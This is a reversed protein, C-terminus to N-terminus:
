IEKFQLQGGRYQTTKCRIIKVVPAAQDVAFKVTLINGLGKPEVAEFWGRYPEATRSVPQQTVGREVPAVNSSFSLGSGSADPRWRERHDGCASWDVLLPGTAASASSIPPDVPGSSRSFLLYGECV